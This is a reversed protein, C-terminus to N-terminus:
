GASMGCKEDGDSLNRSAMTNAKGSALICGGSALLKVEILTGELVKM